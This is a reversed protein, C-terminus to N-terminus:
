IILSIIRFLIISALLSYLSATVMLLRTILQDSSFYSAFALNIITMALSSAPLLWLYFPSALQEEGWPLSYFLPVKPPLKFWSFLLLFFSASLAILALNLCNGTIKDNWVERFSLGMSLNYCRSTKESSFLPAM